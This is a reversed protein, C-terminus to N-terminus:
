DVREKQEDIPRTKIRNSASCHRQGRSGGREQASAGSLLEGRGASSSGDRRALMLPPSRGLRRKLTRESGGLDGVKAM